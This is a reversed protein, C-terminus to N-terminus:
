TECCLKSSLNKLNCLIEDCSCSIILRLSLLPSLVKLSWCLIFDFVTQNRYFLFFSNFIPILSIFYSAVICIVLLLLFLLRLWKHFLGNEQKLCKEEQEESKVWNTLESIFNTFNWHNRVISSKTTFRLKNVMFHNNDNKLTCVNQMGFLIRFFIHFQWLIANKKQSVTHVPFVVGRNLHSGGELVNNYRINYDIYM